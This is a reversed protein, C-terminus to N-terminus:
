GLCGIWLSAWVPNIRDQQPKKSSLSWRKRLHGNLLRTQDSKFNGMLIRVILTRVVTFHIFSARPMSLSIAIGGSVEWAKMNYALLCCFVNGSACVGVDRCPLVFFERMKGQLIEWSDWVQNDGQIYSEWSAHRPYHCDAGVARSGEDLSPGLTWTYWVRSCNPFCLSSSKRYCTAESMLRDGRGRCLSEWSTTVARMFPVGMPCAEVSPM